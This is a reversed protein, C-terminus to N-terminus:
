FVLATFSASTTTFASNDENGLSIFFGPTAQATPTDQGFVTVSLNATTCQCVVVDTPDCSSNKIFTPASKAPVKSSQLKGDINPIGILTFTFARGSGANITGGYSGIGGKGAKTVTLATVAVDAAIINGSASIVGSSTINGTAANIAFTESGGTQKFSFRRGTPVEIALDSNSGAKLTNVTVTGSSSISGTLVIDGSMSIHGGELTVDSGKSKIKTASIAGSASIDGAVTLQIISQDNESKPPTTTGIGVDGSSSVFILSSGSSAIIVDQGARSNLTTKGSNNQTLATNITNFTLNKNVFGATSDDIDGSGIKVTGITNSSGTTAISGSIVLSGSNHDQISFSSDILDIYQEQSPIKGTEFYTKTVNRTKQAM